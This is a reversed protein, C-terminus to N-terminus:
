RSRGTIAVVAAQAVDENSRRHAALDVRVARGVRVAPLGGDTLRRRVTRESVGLFKAAEKVTVPKTETPARFLARTIAREVIDELEDATLVAFHGVGDAVPRAARVEPTPRVPYTDAPDLRSMSFLWSGDM